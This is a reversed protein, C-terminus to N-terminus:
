NWDPMDANNFLLTRTQNQTTLVDMQLVRSPGINDSAKNVFLVKAGGNTFRPQVDITGPTKAFSLNILSGTDTNYVLIQSNLPRGDAAFDNASNFSFAILKGSPAFVPSRIQGDLVTELRTAPVSDMQFLYLKSRYSDPREATAVITNNNLSTWDVGTFLFGDDAEAILTLGSGDKNIKYLRGFNMYLLQDGTPSWCYSALNEDKSRLPVNNTVQMPESGDRNMTYIHIETGVLHLAAMEDRLIPRLRPRWFPRNGGTLQFALEEDMPDLPAKGGFLAFNGDVPRVFVYRFEDKPYERVSFSWVEGFVPPNVGDDAVVQWYYLRGFDMNHIQLFTDTTELALPIATSTDSTFLYVDYTLSDGDPDTGAWALTVGPDLGREGNAPQVVTPVSPPSNLDLSKSLLLKVSTIRDGQVQVSIIGDEYGSVRGRISYSGELLSDIVFEGFEDTVELNTEPNTTINAGPIPALTESDLVEGILRGYSDISITDERCSGLFLLAAM